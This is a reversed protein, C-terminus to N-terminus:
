REEGLREPAVLRGEGRRVLLALSLGQDRGRINAAQHGQAEGQRVAAGLEDASDTLKGHLARLQPWEGREEPSMGDDVEESSYGEGSYAGEDDYDDPHDDALEAAADTSAPRPCRV